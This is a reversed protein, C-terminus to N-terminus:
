SIIQKHNHHYNHHRHHHHMRDGCICLSLRIRQSCVTQQSTNSMTITKHYLVQCQSPCPESGYGLRTRNALAFVPTYGARRICKILSPKDETIVEVRRFLSYQTFLIIISQRFQKYLYSSHTGWVLVPPFIQILIHGCVSIKRYVAGM